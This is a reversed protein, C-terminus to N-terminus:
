GVALDVAVAELGGGDGDDGVLVALLHVGPIGCIKEILTSYLPTRKYHGSSITTLWKHHNIRFTGFLWKTYFVARKIHDDAYLPSTTLNAQGSNVM